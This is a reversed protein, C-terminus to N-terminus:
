MGEDEEEELKAKAAAYTEDIIKADAIEGMKTGKPSFKEIIARAEPLGFKEKVESLAAQMDSKSRKPEYEAKAAKAPKDAKAETKGTSAAPAGSKMAVTLAEVAATLAEIKQELSM